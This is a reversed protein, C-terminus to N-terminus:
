PHGGHRGSRTVKVGRAASKSATPPLHKEADNRQHKSHRVMCHESVQLQVGRGLAQAERPGPAGEWWDRPSTTVPAGATQPCSLRQM